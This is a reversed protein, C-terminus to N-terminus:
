LSKGIISINGVIRGREQKLLGIKQKADHAGICNACGYVRIVEDFTKYDGHERDAKVWGYATYLCSEILGSLPDIVDRSTEFDEEESGHCHELNIERQDKLTKIENSIEGIRVALKELKNM